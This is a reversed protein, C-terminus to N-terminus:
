RGAELMDLLWRSAPGRPMVPWVDVVKGDDVVHYAKFYGIAFPTYNCLIEVHDGTGLAVERDALFISHEEDFRYVELNPEKLIGHSAGVTKSGADLVVRDSRRSIVSALVTV